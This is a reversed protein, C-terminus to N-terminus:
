TVIDFINKNREQWEDSEVEVTLLAVLDKKNQIILELLDLAQKPPLREPLTDIISGLDNEICTKLAALSNYEKWKYPYVIKPKITPM